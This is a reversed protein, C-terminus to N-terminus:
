VSDIWSTMTEEKGRLSTLLYKKKEVHPSVWKQEGDSKHKSDIRLM